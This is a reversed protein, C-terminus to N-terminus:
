SEKVYTVGLFTFGEGNDSIALLNGKNRGLSPGLGYTLAENDSTPVLVGSGVGSGTELMLVGDTVSLRMTPNNFPPTNRPNEDIPKYTGQRSTWPEGVPLGPVSEAETLELLEGRAPVRAMIFNRGEVTRFQVQKTDDGEIAFWGDAMPTLTSQTEELSGIGRTLTLTDPATGASVRDLNAGGAYYGAYEAAVAPDLPVAEGVPLAQKDPMPIGTKATYAAALTKVAIQEAPDLPTLTNGSVFVALDSEPLVLMDSFNWTTAGNHWVVDGAWNLSANGLLFGLGQEVPLTDLPTSVQPTWMQQLTANSLVQGNQGAGEGVLMRLYNAMENATSTVSGAAWGNIYERPEAVPEGPTGEDTLEVSYNSTLEDDSVVSDDFTSNPMGMPGFLNDRTYQDYTQGTVNEVLNALLVYGSNNYAWVEDVGREPPMQALANVLWSRFEPNPGDVTFMGNFVDGPIGSHHDLVSRVTILGTDAPPRLTFEPVYQSLPAELDVQGEEVLQMVALATLTKSVSGIHFNTDATVEREAERDAYGFGQTWVVTDGDVLAVMTGVTGAEAMIRPIEERMQEVVDVYPSDAAPSISGPQPTASDTAGGTTSDSGCGVLAAGVLGAIAFFSATKVPHGSM